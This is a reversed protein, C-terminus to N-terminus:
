EFTYKEEDNIELLPFLIQDIYAILDELKFEDPHVTLYLRTISLLVTCLDDCGYKNILKKDQCLGVLSVTM